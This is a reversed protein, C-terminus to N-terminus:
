APNIPCRLKEMLLLDMQHLHEKWAADLIQLLVWRELQEVEMRMVSQIKATTAAVMDLEAAAREKDFFSAGLQEKLREDLADVTDVGDVLRRARDEIRAADWGEAEVPSNSCM